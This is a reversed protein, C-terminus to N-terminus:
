KSPEYVNPLGMSNLKRIAAEVGDDFGDYSHFTRSTEVCAELELISANGDFYESMAFTYGNNHRLLQRLHKRAERRRRLHEFLQVVPRLPNM